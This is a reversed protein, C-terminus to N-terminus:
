GEVACDGVYLEPRSTFGPVIAPSYEHRTHIAKLRGNTTATALVTTIHLPGADSVQMFHLYGHSYRVIILGKGYGTDAEATGEDVDIQSFKVDVKATGVTASTKAGDWNGTAVTSFSCTLTKAAILKKELAASSQAGAPATHVLAACGAAALVFAAVGRQLRAAPRSPSPTSM